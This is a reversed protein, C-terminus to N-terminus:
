FTERDAILERFASKAGIERSNFIKRPNEHLSQDALMMGPEINATPAILHALRDRKEM